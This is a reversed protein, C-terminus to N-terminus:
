VQCLLVSLGQPGSKGKLVNTQGGAEQAAGQRDGQSVRTEISAKLHQPGQGQARM